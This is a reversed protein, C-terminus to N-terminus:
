YNCARATSQVHICTCYVTCSPGVQGAPVKRSAELFNFTVRRTNSPDSGRVVSLKGHVTLHPTGM